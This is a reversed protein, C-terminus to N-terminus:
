AYGGEGGGHRLYQSAATILGADTENTRIEPQNPIYGIPSDPRIQHAEFSGPKCMYASNLHLLGTRYAQADASLLLLGGCVKYANTM